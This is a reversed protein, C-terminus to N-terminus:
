RPSDRRASWAAAPYRVILRPRRAGRIPAPARSWVRLCDDDAVEIKGGGGNAVLRSPQGRTGDKSWREVDAVTVRGIAGWWSAAPAHPCVGHCGGLRDRRPPGRGGASGVGAAGRARRVGGGAARAPPGRCVTVQHAPQPGLRFENYFTAVAYLQSTTLHLGEAIAELAEESIHGLRHQVAHLVPLVAGEVGEHERVIEAVILRWEDASGVGHSGNTKV